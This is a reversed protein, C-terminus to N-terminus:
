VLQQSDSLIAVSMVVSRVRLCMGKHKRFSFSTNGSVGACFNRKQVLCSNYPHSQQHPIRHWNAAKLQNAESMWWIILKCKMGEAARLFWCMRWKARSVNIDVRTKPAGIGCQVSGWLEGLHLGQLSLASGVASTISVWVWKPVPQATGVREESAFLEPWEALDVPFLAMFYM